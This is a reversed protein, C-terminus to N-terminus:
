NSGDEDREDIASLAQAVSLIALRSQNIDFIVQRVEMSDFFVPKELVQSISAYRQDMIDLSEEVADQVKLITKGLRINLRISVFLIVVLVFSIFCLAYTINM